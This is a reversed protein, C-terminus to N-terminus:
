SHLNKVLSEAVKVGDVAASTIGGAYGAGEGCPFLGKTNLSEFTNKDRLISLVSSTRTEPGILLADNYIFGNFKQDIQKLSIRLHDVVFKPLIRTLDYKFIKSPSSSSPLAESDLSGKLFEGMTMAPLSKGDSYKKSASFADREIKALFDLGSLPTLAKFDRNAKVSVVLASNSWPSNHAYNSMGNTVLGDSETGSSLVYGGPCMCFSYGGRDENKDHYSVRYRAAGLRPDGAFEGLQIKDIYKRPHEVRVGLAFDKAQIQVEKKALDYYVEKASHGTAVVINESYLVEGTTLKVGVVKRNEILIEQAGVGFRVDAGKAKLEDGVKGILARIKNSGLHPNSEYLISEKAGFSVLKELVFQVLPSKVRTLLKGDSFLGAGGEGYCVNSEPDLEGYRWHRSIKKMRDLARDGRELLIPRVGFDLVRLACFLGAPGAGIIIPPMTLSAGHTSKKSTTFNSHYAGKQEVRYFFEPKKGHPANRADLSKSVIKYDGFEPHTNKIFGDVNIDFALKFELTKKM